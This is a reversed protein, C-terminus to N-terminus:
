TRKGGPGSGGGLASQELMRWLGAKSPELFRGALSRFALRAPRPDGELAALATELDEPHDVDFGTALTDVTRGAARCLRVLAQCLAPTSWPLPRLDPWPCRSGLLVVGGDKAPSIVVDREGLSRRVRAFDPESLGPADSGMFVIRDAGRERLTRDLANLREGLGGESQPIVLAEPLLRVAWAVDDPCSPSLTVPGPWSRCDELACALLAKAIEEAAGTGLVRALRQKGQGPFPRKVMLVLVTERM